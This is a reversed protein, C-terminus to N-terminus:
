GLTQPNMQWLTYSLASAFSVWALYPLLLVAATKSERYFLAATAAITLWLLFVEATAIAGLRWVFFLWTWLVNIGIQVFFLALALRAGSFGSKRWVLWASIGMLTYLLGWAPGFLWAPPAWEPRTLELYFTPAQASGFGALGAATFVFLLWAVLGTSQKLTTLQKPRNM